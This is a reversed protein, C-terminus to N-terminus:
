TVCLGRGFGTLFVYLSHIFFYKMGLLVSLYEFVERRKKNFDLFARNARTIRCGM